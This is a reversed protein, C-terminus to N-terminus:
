MYNVLKLIMYKKKSYKPPYYTLQGNIVVRFSRIYVICEACNSAM